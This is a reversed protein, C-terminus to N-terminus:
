TVGVASRNGDADVTVTVTASPGVFIETATGAGSLTGSVVAEIRALKSSTASDLEAAQERRTQVVEGDVGAFTVYRTIPSGAVVARIRLSGSIVSALDFVIAYLGSGASGVRDRSTATEILNDTTVARATASDLAAGYDFTDILATQITM